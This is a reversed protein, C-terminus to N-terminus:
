ERGNSRQGPARGLISHGSVAFYDVFEGIGVMVARIVVIPPFNIGYKHRHM